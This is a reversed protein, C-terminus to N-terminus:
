LVNGGGWDTIDPNSYWHPNVVFKGNMKMVMGNRELIAMDAWYREDMTGSKWREWLEEIRRETEKCDKCWFTGPMSGCCDLVKILLTGLIWRQAPPYTGFYWKM